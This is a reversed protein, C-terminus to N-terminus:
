KSVTPVGSEVTVRSARKAIKKQIFNKVPSGSKQLFNDDYQICESLNIFFVVNKMCIVWSVSWRVLLLILINRVRHIVYLVVVAVAIISCISASATAVKVAEELYILKEKIMRLSSADIRAHEDILLVPIVSNRFDKLDSFHAIVICWRM